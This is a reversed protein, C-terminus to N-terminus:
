LLALCLVGFCVFALWLLGVDFFVVFPLGLPFGFCAALLGLSLGFCDFALCLCAILWVLAVCPLGLCAFVDVSLM